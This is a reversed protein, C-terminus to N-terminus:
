LSASIIAISIAFAILPTIPDVFKLTCSEDATKYIVFIQNNNEDTMIFNKVSQLMSVNGFFLGLRGNVSRMPLKSSYIKYNESQINEEAARSLSVNENSQNYPNANPLAIRFARISQIPPDYFSIGMVESEITRDNDDIPCFLSFQYKSNMMKFYGKYENSFRKFNQDTSIIFNNGIANRKAYLVARDNLLLQLNNKSHINKKWTLKYPSVSTDESLNRNSSM